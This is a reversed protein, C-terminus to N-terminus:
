TSRSARVSLNAWSEEEDVTPHVARLMRTLEDYFARPAGALFVPPEPLTSTM